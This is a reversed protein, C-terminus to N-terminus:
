HILSISAVVASLSSWSRSLSYICWGQLYVSYQREQDNSTKDHICGTTGHCSSYSTVDCERQTNKIVPCVDLSASLDGRSGKSSNAEGGKIMTVTFLSHSVGSLILSVRSWKLPPKLAIAVCCYFRILVSSDRTESTRKCKGSFLPPQTM